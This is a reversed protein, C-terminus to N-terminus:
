RDTRVKALDVIDTALSEVTEDDIGGARLQRKIRSRMQRQVDDKQQWDVLDTFPTVAEDILSALDRNAADYTATRDKVRRPRQKELLGYIAFGRADLEMDDAQSQEGQLEERLDGLLKLQQAADLREQRRQEIIEELRERLSQYFVPNEESERVALELDLEMQSGPAKSLFFFRCADPGIEEVLEKLTVINGTRKSLRVTAGGRKLTVLQYVLLDLRDPDIGLASAFAKMFAVHGQHDAGLVDIVRDFGREVFKNYHYAVDTAFYTPAGTSRVIVKDEDDGLASSRFWTAGDREVLHEGDRLMELVRDYQGGPFLSRESFWEDYEVNLSRMDSRIGEIMRRLGIEGIEAAARGADMGVFRDAVEDRIEEALDIMYSGEYGDPPIEAEQGHLYRALLSRNFADMQSGGDNVYYERQVAYGAADLVNALASGVVAGRAHGAHVPGTPNVSVFEVQVRAGAGVDVTGFSDGAGRIADVQSALWAPSLAFNVFGPPATWVRSVPGEVRVREAIGGAIVMPSMRMQRALRLPLSSAFDGHEAKQPREVAADVGDAPPLAGAEQAEALAAQVIGGIEDRITM